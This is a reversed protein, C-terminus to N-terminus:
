CSKFKIETWTTPKKCMFESFDSPVFCSSMQIYQTLWSVSKDGLTRCIDVIHQKSM